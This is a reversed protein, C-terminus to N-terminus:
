VPYVPKPFRVEDRIALSGVVLDAQLFNLKHQRLLQKDEKMTQLRTILPEARQDAPLRELIRRETSDM